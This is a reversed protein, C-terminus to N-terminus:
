PRLHYMPRTADTEDPKASRSRELFRDAVRTVMELSIGRMCEASLCDAPGRKCRRVWEVERMFITRQDRCHFNEITVGVFAADRWFNGRGFLVSSGQGFLCITPNGVIRGLHAIGSDPCVLLSSNGLLHWLQALDLNGAYRRFRNTGDILTLLATEARGCCFVPDIGRGALWEALQYWKECEWRRLPNSAGVHLVAYPRDPLDFSRCVPATWKLPDYPPPGPGDILSAAIDAWAMPIAPYPVFEDVLLNKYAPRDGSHAVIWRAGVAFALISYRNDGPVLALDFGQYGFLTRLTAPDHPDFGVIEAGYPRTEFLPVMPKQVTMVIQAAPYRMHAKALLATLMLTDGLLLHHVILIRCPHEARFRHPGRLLNVLVGSLIRARMYARSAM